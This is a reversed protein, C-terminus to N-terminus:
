VLSEPHNCQCYYLSYQNDLTSYMYHEDVQIKMEIRDVEAGLTDVISEGHKLLFKEM